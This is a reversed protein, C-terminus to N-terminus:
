NSTRFAAPCVRVKVEDLLVGGESHPRRKSRNQGEASASRRRRVGAHAHGEHENSPPDAHRSTNDEDEHSHSLSRRRRTGPVAEGTWKAIEEDAVADADHLTHARAMAM